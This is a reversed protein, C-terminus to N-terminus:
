VFNLAYTMTVQMTTGNAITNGTSWTQINMDGNTSNLAVNGMGQSNAIVYSMLRGALGAHPRFAASITGFAPDGFLDGGADAPIDPGTRTASIHITAIGAKVVAIQSTTNFGAAATFIGTTTVDSTFDASGDAQVRAIAVGGNNQWQTLDGSQTAHGRVQLVTSAAANPNFIAARRNAQLTGASDVNLLINSASDQIMFSSVVPAAAQQLFMSVSGPDRTHVSVTGGSDITFRETADTLDMVKILRRNLTDEPDIVKFGANGDVTGSRPLAVVQGGAEVRFRETTGDSMTTSIRRTTTASDDVVRNRVNLQGSGKIAVVQETGNVVEIADVGAAYAPTNTFTLVHPSANTVEINRFTGTLDVVTKNTLTQVKDTGVIEEGPSLGHVGDDSNEHNRSDAFDRGSSTHRVRAGAAHSVASTGDVARVVTLTTGAANTVDVLEETLTEYSLALTYPFSVPLGITDSVVLSTAGSTITGVLQKENAVSSYFRVTM